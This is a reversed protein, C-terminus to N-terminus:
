SYITYLILSQSIDNVDNADKEEGEGKEEKYILTSV